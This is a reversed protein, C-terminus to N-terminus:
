EEEICVNGKMINKFTFFMVIGTVLVDLAVLFVAAYKIWAFGFIQYAAMAAIASAAVPFTYAWWSIFFNIKLYSKGLFFVLLVFFFTIMLLMESFIDASFFLRMYSIFGVAPPAIFIFTTPLFKDAVRDHFIMRYFVVSFLVIWFFIGTALFFVNFIQPMMDAGVVPVLMNGVIPIFWAPNILKIDFSNKIWFEIIIVTFLLQGTAGIFWLPVSLVPFRSYLAISLLMFSISITSFFSIKIKHNFEDVVNKTFFATKIGYFVILMLFVIVAITLVTYYFYKPLWQLHFAKYLAIAMGSLGMVVSFMTVPLNKIKEMNKEEFLM